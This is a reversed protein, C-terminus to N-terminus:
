EYLEEYLKVMKSVDYKETEIKKEQFRNKKRLEIIKSSIEFEDLANLFMGNINDKIIEINGGEKSALIPINCVLAELIAMDFVVRESPMLFIDCVKMLKLVDTNPIQGLFKVNNNINLEIALGKLEKTLPGVGSNIMLVKLKFQELLVKIAKLILSINKPKVHAAVNLLIIEYDEQRIHYKEFIGESNISTIATVDVGNYIIRNKENLHKIINLNNLFLELAANSPFTVIEVSEYGIKEREKFKSILNQQFKNELINEYMESVVSGKSHITLIKKKTFTKFYFASISSHIHIVDFTEFYDQHGFFYKDIKNYYYQLYPSSSTIFRYLPLINFLRKGLKKKFSVKENQDIILDSTSSYNANLDYSFFSAQYKSYDLHKLIEYIIKNSGGTNPNPYGTLSTFLIKKM